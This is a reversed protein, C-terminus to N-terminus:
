FEQMTFGGGEKKIREVAQRWSFWYFREAAAKIKVISKADIPGTGKVDICTLSGDTEFVVFDPTYRLDAALKFTLAEFHWEVIEGALKDAQLGAAFREETKNM